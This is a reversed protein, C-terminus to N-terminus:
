FGRRVMPKFGKKALARQADKAEPQTAFRGAAVVRACCWMEPLRRSDIAEAAPFGAKELKHVLRAAWAESKPDTLPASGVVLVWPRDDALPEVTRTSEPPGLVVELRERDGSRLPRLRTVHLEDLTYLWDEPEGDENRLDERLTQGTFWGEALMVAGEVTAAPESVGAELDLSLWGLGLENGTVSLGLYYTPCECGWGQARQVVPVRVIERKGARASALRAALWATMTPHDAEDITVVAGPKSPPAEKSAPAAPSDAPAAEAAPAPATPPAKVPPEAHAATTTLLLALLSRHITPRM